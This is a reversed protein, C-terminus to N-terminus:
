RRRGGGGRRERKPGGRGGPGGGMGGERRPGKMGGRPGGPGQGKGGPGGPGGPGGTRDQDEGGEGGERREERREERRDQREERREERGEKIGKLTERKEEPSMGRLREGLGKRRENVRQRRESFGKMLRERQAPPMNKVRERMGAHRQRRLEQRRGPAHEKWNKRHFERRERLREMRGRHRALRELKRVGVKRDGPKLVAEQKPTLMTEPGQEGGEPGATVAVKGTDFVGVSTEGDEGVEVGFETGRVAAVATPTRLHLSARRDAFSKLKAMFSGVDLSFWSGSKHTSGVTFSTNAGLDIVSESELAVEARGDAGTEIRDGAELPTDAEAPLGEEAGDVHLFVTGSVETLRADWDEAAAAVPAIALLVALLQNM